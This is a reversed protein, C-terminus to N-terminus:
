HRDDSIEIPAYLWEEIGLADFFQRTEETCMVERTHADRWIPSDVMSSAKVVRRGGSSNYSGFFRKKVGEALMLDSKELDYAPRMSLLTAYYFEGEWPPRKRVRDWVKEIKTFDFLRDDFETMANVFVQDVVTDVHPRSSPVGLVHCATLPKRAGVSVWLENLKETTAQTLRGQAQWTNGGIEYECNETPHWDTETQLLWPGDREITWGPTTATPCVGNNTIRYCKM